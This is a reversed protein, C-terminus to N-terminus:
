LIEKILTVAILTGPSCSHLSWGPLDKFEIVTLKTFKSKFPECLDVLLIPCDELEELCTEPYKVEFIEWNNKKCPLYFSLVGAALSGRLDVVETQEFQVYGQDVITFFLKKM